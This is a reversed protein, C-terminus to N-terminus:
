SSRRRHEGPHADLDRLGLLRQASSRSFPRTAPGAYVEPNVCRPMREGALGAILNDVALRGDGRADRHTASGVHPVVLLNPAELLPDDAPLPEPDTVDLAAGAIWGERLAM